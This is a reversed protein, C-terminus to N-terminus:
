PTTAGPPPATTEAFAARLAAVEDGLRGFSALVPETSGAEGGLAILATVAQDLQAVARRLGDELAAAAAEAQRRSRLEAAFAEERRDLEAPQNSGARKRQDAVAKLDSSIQASSRYAPDIRAGTWGTLAAGRRAMTTLVGIDSWVQPQIGALRDRVPGPPWDAVIRDLRDQAAAAQQLLPRWPDPVSWPDIEAPSPLAARARRRRVALTVALGALWGIVALVVAVTASGALLGIGVGVAAPVLPGPSVAARVLSPTVALQRRPAPEPLNSM